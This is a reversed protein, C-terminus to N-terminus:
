PGKDTDEARLVAGCWGAFFLFACLLVLGAAGFVLETMTEQPKRQHLTRAIVTCVIGFCLSALGLTRILRLRRPLSRRFMAPIGRICADFVAALLSEAM